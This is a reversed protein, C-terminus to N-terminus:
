QLVGYRECGIVNNYTHVALNCRSVKDQSESIYQEMDCGDNEICNPILSLYSVIDEELQVRVLHMKAAQLICHQVDSQCNTLHRIILAIFPSSLLIDFLQLTM